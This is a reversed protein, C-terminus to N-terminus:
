CERHLLFLGNYVSRMEGGNTITEYMNNDLDAVVMQTSGGQDMSIASHVKVGFHAPVYVDLFNAMDYSHLGHVGDQGSCTLFIAVTHNGSTAGLGVATNAGFEWTSSIGQAEM